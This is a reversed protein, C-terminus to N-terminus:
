DSAPGLPHGARRTEDGGRVARLTLRVLSSSAICLVQLPADLGEIATIWRTLEDQKLLAVLTLALSCCL